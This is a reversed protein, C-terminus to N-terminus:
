FNWITYNLKNTTFYSKYAIHGIYNEDSKVLRIQWVQGNGDIFQNKAGILLRNVEINLGTGIGKIIAEKKTWLEYFRDISDSKHIYLREEETFILKAMEQYDPLEKKYEIDGGIDQNYFGILAKQFTHSLSFKMSQYSISPKGNSGYEYCIEKPYLGTYESILLRMAVHSIVYTTYDHVFKFENM